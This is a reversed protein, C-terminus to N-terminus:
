RMSRLSQELKRMKGLAIAEHGVGPFARLIATLRFAQPHLRASGKADRGRCHRHAKGTMIVGVLEPDTEWRQRLCPSATWGPMMLDTLLLDFKASQM